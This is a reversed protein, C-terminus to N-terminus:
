LIVPLRVIPGRVMPGPGACIGAAMGAFAFQITVTVSAALVESQVIPPPMAFDSQMLLPDVQFEIPPPPPRDAAVNKDGGTLGVTLWAKRKVSALAVPIQEPPPLENAIQLQFPEVKTAVEEAVPVPSPSGPLLLTGNRFPAPVVIGEVAVCILPGFAQWSAPDVSAYAQM